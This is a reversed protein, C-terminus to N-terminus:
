SQDALHQTAVYLGTGAMLLGVLLVAMAIVEGDGLREALDVALTSFTTLAGCFGTAAFDLLRVSGASGTTRRASRGVILALLATGALNVVVLAATASDLIGCIGWRAVAGAAAGAAVPALREHNM